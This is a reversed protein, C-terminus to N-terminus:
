GSFLQAGTANAYTNDPMDVCPGFEQSMLVGDVDASGCTTM